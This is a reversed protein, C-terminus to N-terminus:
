PVTLIFKLANIANVLGPGPVGATLVIGSHLGYPSDGPKDESNLLAQVLSEASGNSDHVGLISVRVSIKLLNILALIARLLQELDRIRQLINEIINKIEQLASEVAKLLSLIWQEFDFLYPVLSPFLDGVTVSYWQLFGTQSPILSLALRLFEALALRADKGVEDTGIGTSEAHSTPLPGDYTALGATPSAQEDDLNGQAPEVPPFLVQVTSNIYENIEVYTEETMDGIHGFLKWEYTVGVIGGPSELSSDGVVYDVTAQVGQKWKQALMDSVYPNYYLRELVSNVLRRIFTTVIFNDRFETASDNGDKIFGAPGALVSLTGWGAKEDVQFDDDEARSPPLDFNLLLGTMVADFLNDYPKFAENGTTARPVFGRVLNSPKGMKVGDGYYLLWRGKTPDWRLYPFVLSDRSSLFGDINGFYARVRYYYSKGPELSPDDDVYRYTGSVAGLYTTDDVKMVNDFHRYIAGNMERVPVETKVSPVNFEIVVPDTRPGLTATDSELNISTGRPNEQSSREILFKPFLFTPLSSSIQGVLTPSSVGSAASPMKWELVVAQDLSSDFLRKFQAIPEGSKSVPRATLGVPAPLTIEELPQKLLELLAFLEALLDGPSDAGVYLIMMGVEMGQPYQPRHIDADDFFKAIVKSEFGPYAGSVSNIIARFDTLGFNPRVLLYSIGTSKIQNIIARIAALLLAILARLPNVLDLMFAKILALLKELLAEISELLTLVSQVPPKLPGFPDINLSLTSWSATM